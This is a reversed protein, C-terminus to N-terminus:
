EDVYIPPTIPNEPISIIEEPMTVTALIEHQFEGVSPDSFIVFCRANELVIPIFILNLMSYSGRKIVM